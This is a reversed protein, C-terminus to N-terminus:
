KSDGDDLSVPANSAPSRSRKTPVTTAVNTFAASRATPLTTLCSDAAPGAHLVPGRSWMQGDDLSPRVTVRERKTSALNSFLLLTRTGRDRSAQCVPELLAPDDTPGDLHDGGDSSTAVRRRHTNGTSRMKLMLRGDSLEVVQSEGCGPGVVGGIRWQTAHDDGVIVHSQSTRSEAVVHDCPVLLRGAATQIGIGPGTASWTWARKKMHKTLEAPQAWTRGDDVSKSLWV